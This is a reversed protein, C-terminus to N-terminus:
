VLTILFFLHCYILACRESFCLLSLTAWFGALNFLFRSTCSSSQCVDMSCYTFLPQDIFISFSFWCFTYSGCTFPRLFRPRGSLDITGYVQTQGHANFSFWSIHRHYSHSRLLNHTESTLCKIKEALQHVQNPRWRAPRLYALTLLTFYSVCTSSLPFRHYYTHIRIFFTTQVVFATDPTGDAM